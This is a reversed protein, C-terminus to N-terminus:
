TLTTKFIKVVCAELSRQFISGEGPGRMEVSVGGGAGGVGVGAYAPQLDFIRKLANQFPRGNILQM